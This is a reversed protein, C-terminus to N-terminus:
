GIPIVQESQQPMNFASPPHGSISTETSFVEAPQGAILLCLTRLPSGAVLQRLAMQKVTDVYFQEGLQSALVLAPGWLQGEQACQLAEMKKGSVLLHQVESAMARMQEESPFSQLCHSPMGYQTFETGSVKASAFLKAVASEPADNE